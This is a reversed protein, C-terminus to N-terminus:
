SNRISTLADFIARFTSEHGVPAKDSHFPLVTKRTSKVYNVLGTKDNADFYAKLNNYVDISLSSIFLSSDLTDFVRKLAIFDTLSFGTTSTSIDINMEDALERLQAVLVLASRRTSSSIFALGVQDLGSLINKFRSVNSNLLTKLDEYNDNAAVQVLKELLNANDTNFYVSILQLQNKAFIPLSPDTSGLDRGLLLKSLVKLDKFAASTTSPPTSPRPTSGTSRTSNNSNTNKQKRKTVNIARELLDILNKLPKQNTKLNLKKDLLIQKPKQYSDLIIGFKNNAHKKKLTGLISVSVKNAQNIKEKLKETLNLVKLSLMFDAFYQKEKQSLANFEDKSVFASKQVIKTILANLSKSQSLNAQNIKLAKVLNHKQTKKTLVNWRPAFVPGQNSRVSQNM